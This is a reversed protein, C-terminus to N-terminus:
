GAAVKQRPRLHGLGGDVGLIQGSVWSNAPDLLWLAASAIDAPQGLRGLPHMATSAARGAESALLPASMDTEVLGPAIANFRLGRPAYTAAASRTLGEVGGKAAAIAEHNILGTQAAASSFLVVSGGRKAMHKGAARVAAFATTLNLAITEHFQEPSTQHAARVLISGAANVLGTLPGISEAADAVFAEVAAIDTADVAGYGAGLESARQALRGEDRAGLYLAAGAAALERAIASGISGSGGIIIVAQRANAKSMVFFEQANSLRKGFGFDVRHYVRQNWL